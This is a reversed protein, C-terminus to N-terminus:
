TKPCMFFSLFQMSFFFCFGRSCATNAALAMITCLQFDRAWSFRACQYLMKLSNTPMPFSANRIFLLGFTKKLDDQCNEQFDSFVISINVLQTMQILMETKWHSNYFTVDTFCCLEYLNHFVAELASICWSHLLLKFDNGRYNILINM